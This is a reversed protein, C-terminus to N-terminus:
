LSIGLGQLSADTDSEIDNSNFQSNWANYLAKGKYFVPNSARVRFTATWTYSGPNEADDTISIGVDPKFYGRLTILPYLLSRYVIYVSNPRGDSLIPKEDMLDFFDYFDLLGPPLYSIRGGGEWISEYVRVPLVNGTQFTFNLEPNDFFTSRASDRWLHRIWGSRTQQEVGRQAFRWQVSSPNAWLIIYRGGNENLVWNDTTIIMPARNLWRDRNTKGAGVAENRDRLQKLIRDRNSILTQITNFVPNSNVIELTM